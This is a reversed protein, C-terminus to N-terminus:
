LVLSAVEEDPGVCVEGSGTSTSGIALEGDVDLVGAEGRSRSEFRPSRARTLRNTLRFFFDSYSSSGTIYYSYM